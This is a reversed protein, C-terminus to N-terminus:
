LEEKSYGLFGEGRIERSEILIMFADPDVTCVIEKLDAIQKKSVACMLVPRDSGTYMGKGELATAGRDLSEMVADAIETYKGSVIYATYANRFGSVLRDAVIGCVTVTIVAYMSIRIGFIWVSLLIVLGDLVPLLKAVSIHPLLKQFLAALTDTGGTTAKGLLVFGLGLGMIVGGFLAILLYDESVVAYVPLIYLWFSFVLSAILTRRMFNWGRLIIALVILPVNLILNSLWVPLGGEVFPESLRRIIIALGTFGGPVMNAPTYFLNASIAMFFTGVIIWLLNQRAERSFFRRLKM